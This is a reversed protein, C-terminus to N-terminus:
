APVTMTIPKKTSTCYMSTRPRDPHRIVDVDVPSPGSEGPKPHAFRMSPLLSPEVVYNRAVATQGPLFQEAPFLKSAASTGASARVHREAPPLSPMNAGHHDSKDRLPHRAGGAMSTIISFERNGLLQNGAVIRDGASSRCTPM